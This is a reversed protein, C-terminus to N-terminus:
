CKQSRDSHLFDSGVSWDGSRLSRGFYTGFFPPNKACKRTEGRFNKRYLHVKGWFIEKMARIAASIDRRVKKKRWGTHIQAWAICYTSIKCYSLSKISWQGIKANNILSRNESIRLKRSLFGNVTCRLLQQNVTLIDLGFYRPGFYRSYIKDLYFIDLRAFFSQYKRRSRGDNISWYQRQFCCGTNHSFEEM